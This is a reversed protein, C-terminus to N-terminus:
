PVPVHDFIQQLIHESTVDEAEAEYTTILRRRMVHM